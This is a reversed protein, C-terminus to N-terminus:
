LLSNSVKPVQGALVVFFESLLRALLSFKVFKNHILDDVLDVVILIWFNFAFVFTGFNLPVEEVALSSEAEKPVESNGEQNYVSQNHAGIDENELVGVDAVRM